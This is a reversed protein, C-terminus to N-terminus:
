LLGRLREESLSEEKVLAEAVAEVSNVDECILKKAREYQETVISQVRAAVAEAENEQGVCYILDPEFAYVSIMNKAIEVALKFDSAAGTTIGDAQYFHEESARGALAVCIKNLLEQRTFVSKNEEQAYQMFGGYDARSVITTYAPKFGLIAAVVAHGAEHLATRRITEADYMTRAGSSYSEFAENFIGDTLMFEGNNNESYRVANQIVHALDSLSMGVSRTSIEDTKSNTVSSFDYKCLERQIFKKRDALKPLGFSIIKDFRRLFAKDLKTNEGRASFNTAAILFVPTEDYKLFGDLESLFSNTIDQTYRSDEENERSKVIADIEDIFLIAPAYKRAVSFLKRVSKAGVGVYKQLFKTANCEIFPLQCQGALARAMLTKGTGPAGQFLIAKPLTINRKQYATPKKLMNLVSALETKAENNGVVDDFRVNPIEALFKDVDDALFAVETTFDSLTVRAAIYKNYYNYNIDYKIIQQARKLKKAAINVELEESISNLVDSFKRFYIVTGYEKFAQLSIKESAFFYIPSSFRIGKFTNKLNEINSKKVQVIVADAGFWSAPSSDSTASEVAFTKMCRKAIKCDNVDLALTSIKPVLYDKAEESSNNFNIVVDVGKLRIEDEKISIKSINLILNQFFSDVAALVTRVNEGAHALTFLYALKYPKFHLRLGYCENLDDVRRYLEALVINYIDFPKLENFVVINNEGICSVIGHPLLPRNTVSDIESFISRISIKKRETVEATVTMILIADKSSVETDFYADHVNGKLLNIIIGFAGEPLKDINELVVVSGGPNNALFGTLSGPESGKYSRDLGTLEIVATDRSSFTSLDFSKYPRALSIAVKEATFSKGSAPPGLFLLSALPGTTNRRLCGFLSERIKECVTEQGVVECLAKNLSQLAQLDEGLNIGAYDSQYEDQANKFIQRDM